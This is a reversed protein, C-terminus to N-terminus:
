RRRPGSGGERGSATAKMTSDLAAMPGQSTGAMWGALDFGGPGGGAAAGTGARTGAGAGAGAGAGSGRGAGTGAGIKSSVDDMAAARGKRSHREFEARTEPDMMDMLYPMGVTVGLAFAALLLM